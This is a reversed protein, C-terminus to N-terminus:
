CRRPTLKLSHTCCLPRLTSAGSACLIAGSVGGAFRGLRPRIWPIASGIGAGVASGMLWGISGSAVGAGTSTMNKLVQAASMRGGFLRALDASSLILTAVSGTVISGRLVKSLHNAAAAGHIPAGARLGSALWSSVQPGVQQVAWDTTGRLGQEVGTRGLQAALISTVWAISGIQLGIICSTRLADEVHAGNWIAVAFAIVASMGMSTGALRIGNAADYTLSEITGFRAINRVQAYTFRRKRVIAKAQRPDSVAPVQGNGIRHEM